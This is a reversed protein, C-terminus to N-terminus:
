DVLVNISTKQGNALLLNIIYIGAESPMAVQMSPQVATIQQRMRGNIDVIQLIAGQLTASSYNSTVTVLKSGNAPNPHVKLGGPIAAGATISITCSQIQKGSKSTAIVYYQGNLTPTESYYPSTAGPILQDNKYWQWQVYNGSSNDFFIADNWHQSILSAPQYFLTDNVSPATTHNLDGTQTATVVTTGPRLLTLVNGSVTAINADSVSYTVALGSSATATLRMQTTNSCGVLLSQEWTIHQSAKTITLSNGTYNITYNSGASLSGKTIPYAGVAEGSNRSLSGTFIGTNDGNLLGSVTYTLAPDAAGYEKTQAAAAVSLTARNITLTGSTYSFSYNPDTAGSATISYVGAPSSSTATTTITPATALSSVNDGNVFGRYSATLAPVAGGYTITADNATIALSARDIVLNYNQSGSLQNPPRTNDLATVTFSYTGATKPTGSLVGDASISMGAPLNGGSVSFSYPARGGGVKLTQSKYASGYVGNPITTPSFVLTPPVEPEFSGLGILFAVLIFTKELM